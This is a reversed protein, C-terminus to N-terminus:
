AKKRRYVMNWFDLELYSAKEFIGGLKKRDVESLSGCKKDAFDCWERCSEAYRDDAYDQIFDWYKSKRSEPEDALKRFIYSYSLMCPLVAMLIECGNGREAIEFLFDIYNRNEPLLDIFEIEDDTTGFQRLYNLRVVSEADTVFNLISYYLQIEKLTEAHYIAKGYVRAYNKLYISDQIMYEKFNEVSLKGDKMDQVFLAATCKDWVPMNQRLIGEMFPM